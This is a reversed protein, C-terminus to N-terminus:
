VIMRIYEGDGYRPSTINIVDEKKLFVTSAHDADSLFIIQSIQLPPPPQKDATLSVGIGTGAAIAAITVVEIVILSKKTKM